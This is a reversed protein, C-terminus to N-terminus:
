HTAPQAVAEPSTQPPSDPGGAMALLPMPAVEPAVVAGPRARQLGNVVVLEGASLGELVVCLGGPQRTGLVVLRQEVRSAGDVVLVSTGLQDRIIARETVLLAGELRGVPVRVRCFLGPLLAEDSNQFVGRVRFTGTQPDVGLDAFDLVGRHPFGAETSLGVEVEWSAQRLRGRESASRRERLRLLDRENLTFHVHMPDMQIITTLLTNEGAGVLNGITVENQGIRGAMPATIECYSLDLRANILEAQAAHVGERAADRIAIRQQLEAESVVQEDFLQQYRDLDAQADLRRAESATVNAQARDVAAQFPRADIRYLRQGAAVDDGETFLMEELFGQVRARIEVRSSEETTGTFEAHDTVDQVIPQSVTVASPPPPVYQNPETCSCLWLGGLLGIVRWQPSGTGQARASRVPSEM